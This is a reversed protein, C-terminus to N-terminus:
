CVLQVTAAEQKFFYIFIFFSLVIQKRQCRRSHNVSVSSFGLFAIM